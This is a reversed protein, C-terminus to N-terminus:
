PTGATSSGGGPGDKARKRFLFSAAGLVGAAILGGGLFDVGPVFKKEEVPGDIGTVPDTVFHTVTNKTWGTNHGHGIWDGVVALLVLLAAWRLATRMGMLRIWDQWLALM